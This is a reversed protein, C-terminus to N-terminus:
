TKRVDGVKTGRALRTAQGLSMEGNLKEQYERFKRYYAFAQQQAKSGFDSSLVAQATQKVLKNIQDM